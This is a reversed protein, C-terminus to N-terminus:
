IGATKLACADTGNIDHVVKSEHRERQGGEGATKRWGEKFVDATNQLCFTVGRYTDRDQLTRSKRRTGGTAPLSTLM